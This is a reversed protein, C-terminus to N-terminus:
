ALAVHELLWKSELVLLLFLFVRGGVVQARGGVMVRLVLLIFGLILERDPFIVHEVVLIDRSWHAICM